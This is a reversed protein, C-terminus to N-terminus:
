WHADRIMVNHRSITNGPNTPYQNSRFSCVSGPSVTHPKTKPITTPIQCKIRTALEDSEAQIQSPTIVPLVLEVFLHARTPRVCDAAPSLRALRMVVNM